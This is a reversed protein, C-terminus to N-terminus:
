KIKHESNIEGEGPIYTGYPCLNKDTKNVAADKTGLINSDCVLVWIQQVFLNVHVRDSANFIDAHISYWIYFTSCTWIWSIFILFYKM